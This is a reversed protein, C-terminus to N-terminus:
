HAILERVTGHEPHAQAEWDADSLSTLLAHLDAVTRRFGEAPDCPEPADIPRGATRRALANALADARLDDPPEVATSEALAASTDALGPPFTGMQLEADAQEDSELADLALLAALEDDLNTM